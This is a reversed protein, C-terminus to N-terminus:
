RIITINFQMGPYNVGGAIGFTNNTVAFRVENTRMEINHITINDFIASAWNGTITIIATSGAAVGPIAVTISYITNININVGTTIYRTIDTINTLDAGWVPPNNAGASTLIQGANGPLNNPMLAGEIKINGNVDLMEAPTITGIGV